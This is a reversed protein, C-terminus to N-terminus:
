KKGNIDGEQFECYKSIVGNGCCFDCLAKLELTTLYSSGYKEEEGDWTHIDIYNEDIEIFRDDKKFVFVEPGNFIQIWGLDELTKTDKNCKLRNKCM